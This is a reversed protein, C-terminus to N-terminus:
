YKLVLILASKLLNVKLTLFLPIHYLVIYFIHWEFIKRLTM